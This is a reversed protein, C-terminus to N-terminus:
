SPCGLRWDEVGEAERQVIGGACRYLLYFLFYAESLHLYVVSLEKDVAFGHAEATDVPYFVVGVRCVHHAFLAHKLVESEHFACVDIGDARCM